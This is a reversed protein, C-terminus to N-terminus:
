IRLLSIVAATWDVVKQGGSRMDANRQKGEDLQFRQQICEFEEKKFDPMESTEENKEQGGRNM